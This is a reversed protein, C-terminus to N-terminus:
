LFKAPDVGAEEPSVVEVVADEVEPDALNLAEGQGDMTREGDADVVIVQPREPQEPNAAFCVALSGSQLRVVTGPPYLGVMRYFGELLTVDFKEAEELMIRMAKDSPMEDRYPRKSRLADYVDALCVIQSAVHPQWTAEDRLEPHYAQHHEHAVVTALDGVGETKALMRAGELGHRNVVEWEANTLKGPKNLIELPIAEKGVDHLLAAVTIEHLDDQSFPLNQAMALTMMSVNVSHTFSYEDHVKLAHAALLPRTEHIALETIRYAFDRIEEVNEVVGTERARSKIARVAKLGTGYAEWTRFLVDPDPLLSKDIGVTGADINVVHAAAMAKKLGDTAVVETADRALIELFSSLEALEVAEYFVLKNIGFDGLITAFEALVGDDAPLQVNGIVFEGDAVAIQIQRGDDLMLKLGAYCEQMAQELQPHSPPYIQLAQRAAQLRAALNQLNDRATLRSM